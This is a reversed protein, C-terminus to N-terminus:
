HNQSHAGFDKSSHHDPEEKTVFVVSSSGMWRSTEFPSANMWGLDEEEEGEESNRGVM